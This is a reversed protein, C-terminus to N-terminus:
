PVVTEKSHKKYWRKSLQKKLLKRSPFEERPLEMESPIVKKEFM